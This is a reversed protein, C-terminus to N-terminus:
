LDTIPIDEFPPAVSTFYSVSKVEAPPAPYKAWWTWTADPALSVSVNGGRTRSPRWHCRRATACCLTSRAGPRSTTRRLERRRDHLLFSSARRHEPLAAQDHARGGQAQVRRDRRGRRGRQHGPERPGCGSGAPGARVVPRDLPGARAAALLAVAGPRPFSHCM